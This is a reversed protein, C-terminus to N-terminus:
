VKLGAVALEYSPEQRIIEAYGLADTIEADAVFWSVADFRTHVAYVQYRGFEGFTEANSAHCGALNPNNNLETNM